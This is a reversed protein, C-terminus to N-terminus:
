KIAKALKLLEEAKEQPIAKQNAVWVQTQNVEGWSVFQGDPHLWFFWPSGEWMRCWYYKKDYGIFVFGREDLKGSDTLTTDM